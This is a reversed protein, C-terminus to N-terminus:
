VLPPIFLYALHLSAIHGGPHTLYKILIAATAYGWSLSSTNSPLFLAALWLQTVFICNGYIYIFLYQLINFSLCLSPLFLRLPHIQM